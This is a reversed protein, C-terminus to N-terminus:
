TGFAITRVQGIGNCDLGDWFSGACEDGKLWNNSSPWSAPGGTSFYFVALIYRQLVRAPTFPDTLPASSSSSTWLTDQTTLWLSAKYQPSSVTSLATSDSAASIVSSFIKNRYSASSTPAPTAVPPPATRYAVSPMASQVGSGSSSGTNSGNDSSLSGSSQHKGGKFVTVSVAVVAGLLLLSVIVLIMLLKSRKSKSDGNSVDIPSASTGDGRIFDRRLSGSLSSQNWVVSRPAVSAYDSDPPFIGSELDNGSERLAPDHTVTSPSLATLNHRRARSIVDPTENANSGAILAGRHFRFNTSYRPVVNMMETPTYGHLGSDQTADEYTAEDEEEDDNDYSHVGFPGSRSPPTDTSINDSSRPSSSAASAGGGGAADDYNQGRRGQLPDSMGMFSGDTHVPSTM